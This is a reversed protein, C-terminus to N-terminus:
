AQGLIRKVNEVRQEHTLDLSLREIERQIRELDDILVYQMVLEKGSRIYLIECGSTFLPQEWEVLVTKLRISGDKEKIRAETQYTM